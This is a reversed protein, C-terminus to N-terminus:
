GAGLVRGGLVRCRTDKWRAGQRRGGQVSFWAGLVRGDLGQWRAGQVSCGGGLGQWRAGNWRAAQM